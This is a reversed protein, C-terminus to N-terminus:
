PVVSSSTPSPTPRVGNGGAIHWWSTDKFLSAVNGVISFALLGLFLAWTLRGALPSVMGQRKLRQVHAKQPPLMFLWVLSLMKMAYSIFYSYSVAWRVRAKDADSGVSETAFATNNFDLHSDVYKYLVSSVPIALNNVTTVMGYVAGENGLDALETAVFASVIFRVGTPIEDTLTVGTYFWPNRVIDWITLFYVTSDIAILVVTTIAITWRWNWNLGYRGVFALVASFLVYGIAHTLADTFPQVKAWYLAMPKGATSEFNQFLSSLFRFALIQWVAQKQSLKWFQDAWKHFPVSETKREVVVWAATCLASAAPVCLIAFLVNVSVNFDFKGGYVTGNLLLGVLVSSVVQGITRATYIATQIRGRSHVPERQAYQVVLADSACASTVYGFTAVVTGLTIRISTAETNPNILSRCNNDDDRAECYPKGPSLCVLYILGALCVLWGLIMWPKRRYGYIAVCDSLGGMFIKFSWAINVLINFAAVQYGELNLYVQFLPYGLGPLTGYLIGIAGYQAFLAM